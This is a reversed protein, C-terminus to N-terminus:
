NRKRAVRMRFRGILLLISELGYSVTCIYLISRLGFAVCLFSLLAVLSTIICTIRSYRKSEEPRLRKEETDIPSLLVICCCEFVLVISTLIAYDWQICLRLVIVCVFLALTTTTLCISEKSAHVGGAYSRILSFIIYMLIGQWIIGFVISFVITIILFLLRTYLVFFGYIYLDKDEEGIIQACCLADVTKQALKTIM